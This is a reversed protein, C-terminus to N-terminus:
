LMLSLIQLNRLEPGLSRRLASLAKGVQGEVTKVSIGLCEAIEAHSMGDRKAMLFIRRRKDPLAEVCRWLAADRESTDIDEDTVEAALSDIDIEIRANRLSTLTENRVSTFLYTKLSGPAFGSLMREWVSACAEQVADQAMDPDRCIRLSYMGLALYESRMLRRVEEIKM